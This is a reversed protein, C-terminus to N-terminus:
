LDVAEDMHLVVKAAAAAAAEVEAEVVEALGEPMRRPDRLRVEEVGRSLAEPVSGTLLPEMLREEPPLRREFGEEEEEVVVVVVWSPSTEEWDWPNVGGM